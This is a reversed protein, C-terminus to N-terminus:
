GAINQPADAQLAGGIDAIGDVVGVAPVALADIAM